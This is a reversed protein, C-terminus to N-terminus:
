VKWFSNLKLATAIVSVIIDADVCAFGQNKFDYIPQSYQICHRRLYMVNSVLM